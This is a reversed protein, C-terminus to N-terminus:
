RAASTFKRNRALATQVVASATARSLSPSRHGGGEGASFDRFENDGLTNQTPPRDYPEHAEDGIITLLGRFGKDHLAEGARLGALSAGVIAIRGETKFATVLDAVLPHTTM